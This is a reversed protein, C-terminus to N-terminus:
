QDISRDTHHAKSEQTCLNDAVGHGDADNVYKQLLFICTGGCMKNYQYADEETLYWILVAVGFWSYQHKISCSLNKTTFIKARIFALQGILHLKYNVQLDFSKYM